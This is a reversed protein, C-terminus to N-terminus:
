GINKTIAMNNEKALMSIAADGYRGTGPYKGCGVASTMEELTKYIREQEPTKNQLMEQLEASTTDNIEICLSGRRTVAFIDGMTRRQHPQTAFLYVTMPRMWQERQDLRHRMSDDAEVSCFGCEGASSKIALVSTLTRNAINMVLKHSLAFSIASM